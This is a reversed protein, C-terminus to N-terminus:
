CHGNEASFHFGPVNGSSSNAHAWMELAGSLGAAAVEARHEVQALHLRALRLECFEAKLSSSGEGAAKSAEEEAHQLQLRSAATAEEQRLTSSLAQARLAVLRHRHSADLLAAEADLTRQELDQKQRQFEQQESMIELNREHVERRCIRAEVSEWCSKAEAEAIEARLAECQHSVQLDLLSEQARSQAPELDHRLRADSACLSRIRKELEENEARLDAEQSSGISRSLAALRMAM